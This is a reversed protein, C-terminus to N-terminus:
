VYACVPSRRLAVVEGDVDGLQAILLSYKLHDNWVSGPRKAPIDIESPAATSSTQIRREVAIRQKVLALKSEVVMERLTDAERSVARAERKLPLLLQLGDQLNSLWVSM